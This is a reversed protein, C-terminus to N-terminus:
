KKTGANLITAIEEAAMGRDVMDQKLRADIAHRRIKTVCTAAIISLSILVFSGFVISIVVIPLLDGNGLGSIFENM